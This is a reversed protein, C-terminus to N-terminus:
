KNPFKTVDIKSFSKTNIVVKLNSLIIEEEVNIKKLSIVFSGVISDDIFEVEYNAKIKEIEELVIGLQELWEEENPSSNEVIETIQTKFTYKNNKYNIKFDENNLDINGLNFDLYNLLNNFINSIDDNSIDIINPEGLPLLNCYLKWQNSNMQQMVVFGIKDLDIGIYNDDASINLSMNVEDELYSGNVNISIKKENIIYTNFYKEIEGEFNTLIKNIKDEKSTYTPKYEVCSSLSITALLIFLITFIKFTKKM